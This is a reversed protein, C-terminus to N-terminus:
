TILFGLLCFFSLLSIVLYLSSRSPPHSTFACHPKSTVHNSKLLATVSISVCYEVGPQLYMIVTEESYLLDLRFQAGDRTRQVHLIVGRYLNELQLSCQLGKTAPPKLQLILCNGCGSVSVDPPGLVADSKPSSGAQNPGAPHRPPQSPKSEPKTTLTHTLSCEM